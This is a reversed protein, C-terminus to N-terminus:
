VSVGSTASIVGDKGSLLANQASCLELREDRGLSAVSSDVLDLCVNLFGQGLFEFTTFVLDAADDARDVFSNDALHDDLVPDADVAAVHGGDTRDGALGTEQRARM